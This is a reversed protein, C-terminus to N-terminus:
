MLRLWPGVNSTPEVDGVFIFNTGSASVIKMRRVMAVVLEQPTGCFTSPLPGAQIILNTDQLPM